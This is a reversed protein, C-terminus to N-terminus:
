LSVEQKNQSELFDIHANLADLARKKTRYQQFEGFTSIDYDEGVERITFAKKDEKSERESTIFFRDYILHSEIKSNFFRMTAPSFFFRGANKNGRKIDEITRM